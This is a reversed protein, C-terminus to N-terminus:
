LQIYIIIFTKAAQQTLVCENLIIFNHTFPRKFTYRHKLSTISRTQGSPPEQGNLCKSIQRKQPLIFLKWCGLPIIATKNNKKIFKSPPNCISITHKSQPEPCFHLAHWLSTKALVYLENAVSSVTLINKLLMRICTTQNIILDTNWNATSETIEKYVKLLPLKNNKVCLVPDHTSVIWAVFHMDTWHEEASPM